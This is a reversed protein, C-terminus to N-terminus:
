AQALSLTYRRLVSVSPAFTGHGPNARRSDRILRKTVGKGNGRDFGDGIAVVPKDIHM